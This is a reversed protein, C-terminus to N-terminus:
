LDGVALIERAKAIDATLYAGDVKDLTSKIM